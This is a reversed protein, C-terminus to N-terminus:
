KEVAKPEPSLQLVLCGTLVLIGGIIQILVISQGLVIAALLVGVVPEFLALISTRGAGIMRIGMLIMMIPLGAGAVGAFLLIPWLAPHKFPAAIVQWGGTLFAIVGFVIAGAGLFFTTAYIPPISPYGNRGVIFYLTDAFAAILALAIGFISVHVHGGMLQRVVVLVGGGLAMILATIKSATITEKGSIGGVITVFAPYTYFILLALAVTVLGFAYFLSLSFTMFAFAAVMLNRFERSALTDLPIRETLASCGIGFGLLILLAISGIASRWAAFSVPVM